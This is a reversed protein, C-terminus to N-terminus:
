LPVENILNSERVLTQKEPDPIAVVAKKDDVTKDGEVLKKIEDETLDIEETLECCPAIGPHKPDYEICTLGMKNVARATARDVARAEIVRGRPEGRSLAGSKEKADHSM